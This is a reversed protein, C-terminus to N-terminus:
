APGTPTRPTSSTSAWIWRAGSCTAPRRRTGPRGIIDEGTVRMAGFGLRHVTRDGGVDFTDSDNHLAM